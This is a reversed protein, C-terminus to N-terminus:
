AQPKCSYLSGDPEYDERAIAYYKVDIDYFRADKEYKLGLKELVRQSAINEPHVVAAIRNLKLEEFGYRLSARAAETAFGKGWHERALRYGVEVENTGDLHHLGCFGMLSPTQKSRVAWVSFGHRRGHELIFALREATRERPAPKGDGIFRMVDPDSNIAALADLDDPTFPRLILRETEVIHM